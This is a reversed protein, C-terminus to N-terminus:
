DYYPTGKSNHAISKGMMHHAKTTTHYAETTLHHTKTMIPYKRIYPTSKTLTSYKFFYVSYVIHQLTYQYNDLPKMVFKRFLNEYFHPSYIM